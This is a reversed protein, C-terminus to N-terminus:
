SNRLPRTKRGWRVMNWAREHGYYFAVKLIVEFIGVGAALSLEGTFLFVLTMTIVTAIVRWSLMKALSRKRSENQM